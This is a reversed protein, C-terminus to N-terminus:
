RLGQFLAMTKDADWDDLWDSGQNSEKAIAEFDAMAQQKALDM